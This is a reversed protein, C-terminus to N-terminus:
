AQELAQAFQYMVFLWLLLWFPSQIAPVFLFTLVRWWEGALVAAPDLILRATMEPKAYGMFYIAGSILAIFLPFQPIAWDGFRRELADLWRM